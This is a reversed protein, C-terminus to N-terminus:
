PGNFDLDLIFENTIQLLQAAGVQVEEYHVVPSSEVFGLGLASMWFQGQQNQDTTFPDIDDADRHVIWEEVESGDDSWRVTHYAASNQPRNWVVTAFGSVASCDTSEREWTGEWTGRPGEGELFTGTGTYTVTCDCVTSLACLSDGLDDLDFSVSLRVDITELAAFLFADPGDPVDSDDTDNPLTDVPDPDDKDPNDDDPTDVGDQCVPAGYCDPDMCDFIGDADNDAGDQCEFAEDGELEVGVCGGLLVTLWIGRM